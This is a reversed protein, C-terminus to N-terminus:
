AGAWYKEPRAIGAHCEVTYEAIDTGLATPETTWFGAPHRTISVMKRGELYDLERRLEIETADSYIARAIQLLLSEHAAIPRSNNLALLLLWRLSERRVKQMDINM